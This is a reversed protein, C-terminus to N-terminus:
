IVTRHSLAFLRLEMALASSNRRNQMLGYLQKPSIGSVCLMSLNSVVSVSIDTMGGGGRKKGCIGKKTYHLELVNIFMIASM